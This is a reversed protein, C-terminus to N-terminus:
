SRLILCRGFIGNDIMGPYIYRRGFAVNGVRCYFISGRIFIDNWLPSYLIEEQEEYSANGRDSLFYINTGSNQRDLSVM